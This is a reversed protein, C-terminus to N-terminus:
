FCTRTFLNSIKWFFSSGRGTVVAFYGLAKMPFLKGEVIQQIQSLVLFFFKMAKVTWKLGALNELQLRHTLVLYQAGDQPSRAFIM